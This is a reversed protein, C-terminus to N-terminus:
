PSTLMKMFKELLLVKHLETMKTKKHHILQVQNSLQVQQEQKNKKRRKRAM